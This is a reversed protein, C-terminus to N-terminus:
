KLVSNTKLKKLYRKLKLIYRITDILKGYHPIGEIDRSDMITNLLRTIIIFNLPIKRIIGFLFNSHLIKGCIKNKIFPRLELLLIYPIFKKKEKISGGFNYSVSNKGKLIDDYQEQTIVSESLAKETEESGPLYEIEFCHTRNPNLKMYYQITAKLFEDDKYDRKDLGFIHNAQFYIDHKRLLRGTTFIHKDSDPRKVEEIRFKEDIAQVGIEICKLGAEKLAVILNEDQVLCPNTCMFFPLNINKKYEKVFESIWTKGSTFTDDAFGVHKIQPYKKIAESLERIVSSVSRRRFIKEGHKDYENRYNPSGCYSCSFQCSRQSNMIYLKSLFPYDAYVDSKDQFPLTDLDHVVAGLGDGVIKGNRLYYIGPIEPDRNNKEIAEVLLPLAIEGDGRCVYDFGGNEFLENYISITPHPGGAVTIVDPMKEKIRRALRLSRMCYSTVVSFGIIGPKLSALYDIYDDDSIHCLPRALKLFPLSVTTNNILDPILLVKSEHGHQKLIASLLNIGISDYKNIENLLLIKM